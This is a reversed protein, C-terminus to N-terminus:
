GIQYEMSHTTSYVTSVRQTIFTLYKKFNWEHSSPGLAALSVPGERARVGQWM